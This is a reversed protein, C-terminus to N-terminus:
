SVSKRPIILNILSTNTHDHKMLYHSKCGATCYYHILMYKIIYDQFYLFISKDQTNKISQSWCYLMVKNKIHNTAKAMYCYRTSSM